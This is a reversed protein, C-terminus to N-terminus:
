LFLDVELVHEAQTLFQAVGEQQTTSSGPSVPVPERSIYIGVAPGTPVERVLAGSDGPGGYDDFFVRMPHRDSYYTPHVVTHTIKATVTKGTGVGTFTVTTGGVPQSQVALSSVGAPICGARVILAVDIKCSGYDGLHWYTNDDMYVSSGRSLAGVVHGATLVGDASPRIKSKRSRAWCAGTGIPNSVNAIHLVPRRWNYVCAVSRNGVSVAIVAQRASDERSEIEFAAGFVYGGFHKLTSPFDTVDGVPVFGYTAGEFGPQREGLREREVITQLALSWLLTRRRVDNDALEALRRAIDDRRGGEPVSVAPQGEPLLEEISQDTLAM